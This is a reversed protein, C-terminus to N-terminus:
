HCRNCSEDFNLQILEDSYNKFGKETEGDEHVAHEGCFRKGPRVMMRCNRKKRAVFFGCRDDGDVALRGKLFPKDQGEKSEGPPTKVGSREQDNDPKQVKVTGAGLDSGVQLNDPPVPLSENNDAIAAPHTEDGDAKALIAKDNDATTQLTGNHNEEM